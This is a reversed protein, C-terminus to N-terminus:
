DDHYEGNRNSTRKEWIRLIQNLIADEDYDYKSKDIWVVNKERKFWTLQRKAFHRTNRKISEVADCLSINGDLYSLLEKYGLGQMSVMQSTLGLSKLYKVEDLLGKEMMQDVRQNIREYLHERRDNLVFYSYCFPSEREMEKANHLSIPSKTEHYYELARIVRKVNHPHINEASVPDETKLMQYLEDSGGARAREELEQRFASKGSDGSFDVDKLIAQIYFGTGGVLIPLRNKQYIDQIAEMAMQQFRAVHFEEWPELVDILYHPINCMEDTMIKASGIDMKKYVQMSDASIISGNLREAVKISLSTKGVASPGTLVMLQKKM